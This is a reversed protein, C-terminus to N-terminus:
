ESPTPLGAVQDGGLWVAQVELTDPDFAVRNGHGGGDVSGLVEAPGTTAARVALERDVGVRVLNRVAADLLTTAGALAGDPLRAAGERVRIDGICAVSDSVIVTGGASGLAVRLGAAHVHVLDAIVTSTLRADTLAAGVLGPARARLPEMANFLHTVVSAGATVAAMVDDYAARSHGLAVVVGAAALMRTADLGPDAEPALTVLRVLGPHGVLLGDLWEVDATRVLDARHAGPAHGLFPGELHVGLISAQDGAASAAAQAAAARELAPVYADLPATVFTPCYATIGHTLLTRGVEGWADPDADVLDIDGIGNVQLDVLGPALM